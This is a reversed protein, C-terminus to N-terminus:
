LVTSRSLEDPLAFSLTIEQAHYDLVTAQLQNGETLQKPDIHWEDRIKSFPLEISLQTNLGLVVKKIDSRVELIPLNLYDGQSVTWAQKSTAHQTLDFSVILEDKKRVAEDIALGGIIATIDAIMLDKLQKTDQEIKQLRQQDAKLQAVQQILIEHQAESAQAFIALENLAKLQQRNSQIQQSNFSLHKDLAQECIRRKNTYKPQRDQESLWAMIDDGAVRSGTSSGLPASWAMIGACAINYQQILAKTTALIDNIASPNVLDAQTIVFFIPRRHNLQRLFEVDDLRLAGNKANMLWILHDAEALQDRAIAEDRMAGQKADAKSYGPTDLFALNQWAFAQRRIMLLQIIHSFGVTVGISKYHNYFAHSIAQLASLDLPILQYFSNLATLDDQTSKSIFTPIATTPELAEPLLAEGLLSNLFRSKGASFGGGVGITVKNALDPFMVLYELSKELAMLDKYAKAEAPYHDQASLDIYDHHLHQHFYAMQQHIQNSDPRSMLQTLLLLGKTPDSLYPNELAQGASALAEASFEFTSFDM